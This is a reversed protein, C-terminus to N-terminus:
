MGPEVTVIMNRELKQRGVYPRPNASPRLEGLGDPTFFERKSTRRGFRGRVSKELLLRERGSVDHVELGVHHGLGHPFFAAVTGATWIEGVSGGKLVGLRMLGVLAVACAHLHLKYYLIGPRIAEICEKQMKNVIKYIEKTEQSPKTLYLTRTVDAAYCEWECAADLVLLQKSELDQDNADYHLTAANKGSGAIVAYAMNKAGRVACESQFLADVERENKFQRIKEAVARHAASSVQNAKRIMAVEYETKVVRAADMAPLLKDVNFGVPVGQAATDGNDLNFFPAGGLLEPTQERHLVYCKYTSDDGCLRSAIYDNM